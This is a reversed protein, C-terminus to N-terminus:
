TAPEPWGDELPQRDLGALFRDVIEGLRPAGADAYHYRARVLPKDISIQAALDIPTASVVVEATSRDITQRLAELQSAGYGVAPLVPGIHPYRAFLDTLEPPASTRPDVIEAVGAARAAVYGAGHAMGGHTITPGDEVVLVRRGPVAAADDLRVPSTAKIVCAGPNVAHVAAIVREVDVPPASDVKNVIVVDAMRAVTEGPHHTTVQDPRLADAIVIHLDPM